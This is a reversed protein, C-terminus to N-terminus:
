VGTWARVAGLPGSGGTHARRAAGFFARCRAGCRSPASFHAKRSKRRSSSVAACRRCRHAPPILPYVLSTAPSFTGPNFKMEPEILLPLSPLSPSCLCFRSFLPVCRIM